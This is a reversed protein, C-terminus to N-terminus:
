ERFILISEILWIHLFLSFTLYAQLTFISVLIVSRFIRHAYEHQDFSIFFQPSHGYLDRRWVWSLFYKKPRERVHFWLSTRMIWKAFSTPSIQLHEQQSFPLKITVKYQNIFEFIALGSFNSWRWKTLWKVIGKVKRLM